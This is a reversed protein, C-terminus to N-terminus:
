YVRYDDIGMSQLQKGIEEVFRSCIIVRLADAEKDALVTPAFIEIGQKFTHWKNENNDVIFKPRHLMGYERLYKDCSAGAGFIVIERDNLAAFLDSKVVKDIRELLCKNRELSHTNIIHKTYIDKYLGWNRVRWVFNSDAERFVPWITTLEFWEQVKEQPVFKSIEPEANYLTVLARYLVYKAPYNDCCYEQDFFVFRSDVVFVNTPVMDLYAKTLIVGCDMGNDPFNSQASEASSDLICTWLQDMLKRFEQVSREAAEKLKTSLLPAVMYPMEIRGDAYKQEVFALGRKRLEEGYHYIQSVTGGFFLPKKEVYDGDYYMLVSAATRGKDPSMDVYRVEKDIEDMRYELLFSNAFFAWNGCEALDRLLEKENRFLRSPEAYYLELRQMMDCSLSYEDTFINRALRWDPMIGWVRRLPMASTRFLMEWEARTFYDGEDTIHGDGCLFRTGLKNDVAWLLVGQPSLAKNVVSLFNKNTQWTGLGGFVIIASFNRGEYDDQWSFMSVSKFRLGLENLASRSVEGVVLVSDTISFDYWSFWAAGWLTDNCIMTNM